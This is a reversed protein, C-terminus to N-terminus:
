QNLTEDKKLLYKAYLFLSIPISLGILYYDNEYYVNLQMTLFGILCALIVIKEPKSWKM